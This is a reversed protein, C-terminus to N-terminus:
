GGTNNQGELDESPQCKEDIYTLFPISGQKTSLIDFWITSVRCVFEAWPAAVIPLSKTIRKCHKM